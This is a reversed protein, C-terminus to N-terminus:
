YSIALTARWLATSAGTTVATFYAIHCGMTTAGLGEPVNVADYNNTRSVDHCIIALGNQATTGTAVAANGYISSSWVYSPSENTKSGTVTDSIFNVYYKSPAAPNWYISKINYATPDAYDTAVPNVLSLQINAAFAAISSTTVTFKKNAFDTSQIEYLGAALGTASVIGVFQKALFFPKTSDKYRADLGSYDITLTNSGSIRVASVTLYFTSQTTTQGVAATYFYGKCVIKPIADIQSKTVASNASLPNTGNLTLWGTSIALDGTYTNNGSNNLKAGVKDDVYLKNTAQTGVTPAASPLALAGTLTGGSLDLKGNLATQTATSVPKNVDSTNDVSGLGVQAKTVSHPNDTRSTHSTLSTQTALPLVASDVYQKPAAVLDSGPNGALTLSGSMTLNGIGSDGAKNIPTYGLSGASVYGQVWAVTAAHTGTSPTAGITLNGTMPISGDSKVYGSVSVNSLVQSITAQKLNNSQSILIKDSVDVSSASPQETIAGPTLDANSIIGNLSAATVTDGTAFTTSTSLKAM